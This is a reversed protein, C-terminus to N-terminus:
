RRWEHKGVDYIFSGKRRSSCHLWQGDVAFVAEVKDAGNVRAGGCTALQNRLDPGILLIQDDAFGARRMVLVIDDATLGAADSSDLGTVVLSSPKECGAFAALLGMAAATIALQRARLAYEKM